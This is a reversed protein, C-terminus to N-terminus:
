LYHCINFMCNWLYNDVTNFAASFYLTSPFYILLPGFRTWSDSFAESFCNSNLQSLFFVCTKPLDLTQELTNMAQFFVVHLSGFFCPVKSFVFSAQVMSLISVPPELCLPLLAPRAENKLDTTKAIPLYTQLSPNSLKEPPLSLLIQVHPILFFTSDLIVGLNQVQSGLQWKSLNRDSLGCCTQLNPQPCSCFSHLTSIMLETKSVDFILPRHSTGPSPM